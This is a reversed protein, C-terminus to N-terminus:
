DADLTIEMLRKSAAEGIDPCTSALDFLVDPDEIRDIANTRAKQSCAERAVIALLKHDTIRKAAANCLELDHLALDLLVNQDTCVDMAKKAAKLARHKEYKGETKSAIDALAAVDLMREMAATRAYKLPSTRAVKTLLEQDTLYMAASFLASDNAVKKQGLAVKALFEQDDIRRVADEIVQAHQAKQVVKRLEKPDAIAQVAERAKRLRKGELGEKAWVPDNLAM